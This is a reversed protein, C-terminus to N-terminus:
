ALGTVDREDAVPDANTTVAVVEGHHDDKLHRLLIELVQGSSFADMIDDLREEDFLCLYDQESGELRLRFSMRDKDLERAEGRLVSIQETRSRAASVAQRVKRAARRDLVYENPLDALMRGSVRVIEVLGQGPPALKQVAELFPLSPTADSRTSIAWKLAAGLEHGRLAVRQHEAVDYPLM